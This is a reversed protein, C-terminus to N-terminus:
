LDRTTFSLLSDANRLTTLAQKLHQFRSKGILGKAVANLQPFKPTPIHGNTFNLLSNSRIISQFSHSDLADIWLIFTCYM